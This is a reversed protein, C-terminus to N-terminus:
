WGITAPNRAGPRARAAWCRGCPPAPATRRFARSSRPPRISGSSRTPRGTPSGSRTGTTSGSRTRARGSARCSGSAGRQAVGPRVDRGPGHELLEGLDPRAFRVLRAARGSGQTPPEIVTAEGTETDIRAIHNGALSAYYVDGGPTTAIGYPGRGRPAKWVKMDSTDPDLRGYYGSQGTFWVRGKRDFTLTNLNAYEVDSGSAALRAGRPDEPRRARDREPRQRHDVARRRSRRDRRAARFRPRARNGRVQRDESRPHRAPRDGAGHLLRARGARAGGRCRASALRAGRRLLGARAAAAAQPALPAAAAVASSCRFAPSDSIAM